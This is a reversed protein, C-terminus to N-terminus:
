SSSVNSSVGTHDEEQYNSSSTDMCHKREHANRFLLLIAAFMMVVCVGINRFILYVIAIVILSLIIMWSSLEYELATLIIITAFVFIITVIIFVYTGIMESAKKVTKKAVAAINMNAQKVDAVVKQITSATQAGFAEAAPIIKSGLEAVSERVVREGTDLLRPDVTILSEQTAMHAIKLELFNKM